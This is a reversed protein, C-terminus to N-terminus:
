SLDYDKGPAISCPPFVLIFRYEPSFDLARLVAHSHTNGTTATSVSAPQLLWDSLAVGVRWGPMTITVGTAGVDVLTGTSIGVLVAIGWAGSAVGVLATCGVTAGAVGM